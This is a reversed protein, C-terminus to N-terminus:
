AHVHSGISPVEHEVYSRGCAPCTLQNTLAPSPERTSTFVCEAGCTLCEMVACHFSASCEACHIAHIRDSDIVEYDDVEEHGCHPCQISLSSSDLLLRSNDM